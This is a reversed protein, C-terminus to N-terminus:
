FTEIKWTSLKVLQGHEFTGTITLDVDLMVSTPDKNAQAQVEAPLALLETDTPQRRFQYNGSAVNDRWEIPVNLSDKFERASIGLHIGGIQLAPHPIHKPWHPCQPNHRQLSVTFGLLDSGGGMEGSKFEVQGDPLDYCISTEHDGADGSEHLKSPGVKKQVDDLNARGLEFGAFHAFREGERQLSPTATALTLVLLTTLMNTM